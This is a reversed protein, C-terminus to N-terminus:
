CTLHFAGVVRQQRCLANYTHTADATPEVIVKIGQQALYTLTDPLVQMYGQAGTGIILYEPRAAVIETIDAVSVRHGSQRCWSADVQDPYLILDTDYRVGAIIMEGFDYAEIM